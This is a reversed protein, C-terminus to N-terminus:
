NYTHVYDNITLSFAFFFFFVVCCFGFWWFEGLGVVFCFVFGGFLRWVLGSFLSPNNTCERCLGNRGM